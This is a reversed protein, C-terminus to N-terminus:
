GEAAGKELPEAPKAESKAEPKAPTIMIHAGATGPFMLWPAGPAQPALPLGTSEPTAWPTYVVWRLYPDLVKGSAADFGSGHLVYLTAPKEPMALTGADAEQWRRKMREEGSVGAAELERGRRMYPELSAHYCAVSFAEDGPKDALCVLDNSGARLEAVAGDAGYGLVRAGDRRDEPAAQLAAAIQEAAPPVAAAAAVAGFGLLLLLSSHTSRM